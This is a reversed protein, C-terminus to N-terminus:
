ATGSALPDADDAESPSSDKSESQVLEPNIELITAFLQSNIEVVAPVESTAQDYAEERTEFFPTKDTESTVCCCFLMSALLGSMVGVRALTLRGTRDRAALLGVRTIGEIDLRRIFWEEGGIVVRRASIGESGAQLRELRLRAASKRIDAVEEAVKEKVQRDVYKRVQEKSAQVVSQKGGADFQIRNMQPLEDASAEATQINGTDPIEETSM